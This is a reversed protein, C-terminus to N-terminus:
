LMGLAIQAVRESAGPGGLLDRVGLLARRLRARADPDTLMGLAADAINEPSAQGQILEPVLERGAILNVLGINRVHILLKGIMYSLPSVKYVIIMPTGAIAAELTVTGSAAVVLTSRTFIRNVGGRVFECATRIPHRGVIDDVIAPRVTPAISVLFRLDQRRRRLLAAAGLMVPLHRAVERDRSGPLFGIVAAADERNDPLLVEPRYADLLPHGVFTVPIGHRDYFDAEFPLIVAVHDVLRGIQHVRGSRWAWIQPSIYYLVPIGIRKAEAALRLNFDPFDILVLLAPRRRRLHKQATRLGRILTPAKFLAESIGVVSLQAADVVLEVGAARMAPGGIGSVMLSRDRARLARVLNAGHLDGSAEGAVVMVNKATLASPM